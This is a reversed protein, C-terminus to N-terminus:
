IILFLMGIGIGVTVLGNCIGDNLSKDDEDENGLVYNM